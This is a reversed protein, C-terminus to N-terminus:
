KWCRSVLHPDGIFCTLLSDDIPIIMQKPQHFHLSHSINALVGSYPWHVESLLLPAFLVSFRLSYLHPPLPFSLLYTFLASSHLSYLHSSLLPTRLAPIHLSYLHSFLLSTFSNSTHLSYLHSSLLLTCLAPIHLSYLHSCLLSACLASVRLSYLHAFLLSTCLTSIFYPLSSLLSTFLSLSLSYPCSPLPSTLLTQFHLTPSHLSSSPLSSLLSTFLTSFHLLAYLPNFFTAFHLSSPLSSLRSTFVTSIYLSSHLISSHQSNFLTPFHLSYPVSSLLFSFPFLSSSLLSTGHTPFSTRWSLLTHWAEPELATLRFPQWSESHCACAPDLSLLMMLFSLRSFSIDPHFFRGSLCCAVPLATLIWLHCACALDFSLPMM